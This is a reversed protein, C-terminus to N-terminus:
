LPSNRDSCNQKPIAQKLLSQHSSHSNSREISCPKSSGSFKVQSVVVGAAQLLLPEVSIRISPTCQKFLSYSFLIWQEIASIIGQVSWSDLPNLKIVTRSCSWEKTYTNDSRSGGFSQSGSPCSGLLYVAAPPFRPFYTLISKRM